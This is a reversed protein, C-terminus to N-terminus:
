TEIDGIEIRYLIVLVLDISLFLLEDRLFNITTNNVM